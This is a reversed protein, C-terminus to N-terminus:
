LRRSPGVPIKRSYGIRWEPNPAYTFASEITRNSESASLGVRVAVPILERRADEISFGNDRFSSAAAFLDSNRRGVATSGEMFRLAASGLLRGGVGYPKVLRRGVNKRRMVEMVESPIDILEGEDIWSYVDGSPHTSPPALVYGGTKKVHIDSINGILAAIDDGPYRFYFHVGRRTRVRKTRINPPTEPKDWDVVLVGSPKGTLIGINANPTHRWWRAVLDQQPPETVFHKWRALMPEKTNPVLPIVSYGLDLYRIAYDMNSAM